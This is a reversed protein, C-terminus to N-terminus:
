PIGLQMGLKNWPRFDLTGLPRQDGYLLELRTEFFINVFYLSGVLFTDRLYEECRFLTGVMDCCENAM